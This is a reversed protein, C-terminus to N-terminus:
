ESVTKKMKMYTEDDIEGSIYRQNLTDMVSDNKNSKIQKNYYEYVLWIPILWFIIMM